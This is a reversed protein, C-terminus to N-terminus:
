PRITIGHEALWNRAEAFRTGDDIGCAGLMVESLSRGPLLVFQGEADFKVIPAADIPTRETQDDEM